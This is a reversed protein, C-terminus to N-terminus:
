VNGNNRLFRLQLCGANAGILSIGNLNLNPVLDVTASERYRGGVSELNMSHKSESPPTTWQAPQAHPGKKTGWFTTILIIAWFSGWTKESFPAGM